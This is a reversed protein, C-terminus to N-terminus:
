HMTLRHLFALASWLASLALLTWGTNRLSIIYEPTGIGKELCIVGTFGMVTGLVLGAVGIGIAISIEEKTFAPM